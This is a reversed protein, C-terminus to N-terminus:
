KYEDMLVISNGIMRFLPEMRHMRQELETADTSGVSGQVMVFHSRYITVFALTRMAVASDLRQGTVDYVLMAGPRRDITAKTASIVQAGEPAFERLDDGNFFEQISKENVLGAPIPTIVIGAMALGNGNESTCWKVVHPREGERERWSRPIRMQIHLGGSKPHGKTSIIKTFGQSFEGEPWSHFRASLLTELTPSPLDGKARRRVEECFLRASTEDLESDASAAIQSNLKARIQLFKAGTASRIYGEIRNQAVVFAAAFEQQAVAASQKLAPFESQIRSLSAAQALCFGYTHSYQDLQAASLRTGQADTQEGMGVPSAATPMRAPPSDDWSIRAGPIPRAPSASTYRPVTANVPSFQASVNRMRWQGVFSLIAFAVIALDYVLRFASRSRDRIFFSAVGSALSGVVWYGLLAGTLSGFAAAKPMERLSTGSSSIAITAIAALLAVVLSYRWGIYRFYHQKPPQRERTDASRQCANAQLARSTSPLPAEAPECAGLEGQLVRFCQVCVIQEGWTRHVELSGITRHCNGCTNM